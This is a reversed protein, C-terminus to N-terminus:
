LECKGGSCAYERSGDTTDVQEFKELLDWSIEPMSSVLENYKEEDIEEYPALQYLGGDYPLFSLGAVLDFNKYVWAGVELWEEPKVFITNSPNHDTWNEKVMKWYELQEIANEEERQVSSEPAKMPFEFVISSCDQMTQGVEPQHPIGQAVMFLALPDTSSVRVRRIYHKAYRPHIGSASDVLQSVTGSPKVSTIAKPTQIGLAKAWLAAVTQTRDRLIDLWVAAEDGAKSLVPHDKLGTLSVGLLREDEVNKKWEDSIFQFDTLTSQMIGLITACSTKYELSALTDEPRVIIETLNCFQRPRLIIEGCNHVVFGEVVGWHTLPESFDYVKEIRGTSKVSSVKPSEDALNVLLRNNKYTQIFGIENYFMLRSQYQQLNVDYTEKFLYEGDPMQKTVPKNTTIYPKMGLSELTEKVQLALEKCSTKLAVRGNSLVTGNASYLGKLFSRKKSDDWSSFTLPLPRNPLRNSSFGLDKLIENYGVVYPKRGLSKDIGFLGRVEDDKAGFNIEIGKHDKSNLRGTCGDGQIFGYKIYGQELHSQDNVLFPYLHKGKLDKAECETGDRLMFRHDETCRIVQRTTLKVEVTPKEGSCWVYGKSYDGHINVIEVEVTDENDGVLSEFTEYGSSTLLRMDGSLCPNVGYDRDERGLAVASKRMGERNIIGREGTGSKMLNMWEEMFSNIDPKETYAVSNNSLMRHPTELWFQGDKAHRMRNDSLNSLNITASRRVGGAIVISATMCVIDYCELSNLKRGKANKFINLTFDFLQKLPEYGSARGGFTKLRAGKPRILSYDVSPVSGIYLASLYELFAKAWGQRSDEVVIGFPSSNLEEPVEPLSNIYQRETSFGVGTGCMLIYLIEAFDRPSEIITYACNYGAINDRELAEGASWLARMSPMVDLERISAIAVLYATRCGVDGEPLKPLFFDRYRDVTEDWTERRNNNDLWRSYTRKYIM